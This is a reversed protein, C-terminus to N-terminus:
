LSMEFIRGGPQVAQYLDMKALRLHSRLAIWEPDCNVKDWARAREGLSEFWMLLKSDDYRIIRIQNRSFVRALRRKLHLDGTYIRAEAYGVSGAVHTRRLRPSFTNTAIGAALAAFARRTIVLRYYREDLFCV